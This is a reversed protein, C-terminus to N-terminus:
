QEKFKDLLYEAHEYASTFDCVPPVSEDEDYYEELRRLKTVIQRIANPNFLDLDVEGMVLSNLQDLQIGSMYGLVAAVEFETMKVM